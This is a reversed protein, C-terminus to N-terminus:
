LSVNKGEPLHTAEKLGILQRSPRREPQHGDEEVVLADAAVALVDPLELKFHESIVRCVGSLSARGVGPMPRPNSSVVKALPPAAGSGASESQACTAHAGERFLEESSGNPAISLPRPSIDSDELVAPCAGTEFDEFSDDLKNGTVLLDSDSRTRLNESTETAFESILSTFPTRSGTNDNDGLSVTQHHTDVPNNSTAPFCQPNQTATSLSKISLDSGTM